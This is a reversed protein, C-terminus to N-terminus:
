GLKLPYSLLLLHLLNLAFHLAVALWLRRGLHFALGYGLGAVGAVLAFTPSFPAHAAGFLLAGLAIGAPARYRRVLATQLWGRFVLEESLATVCLNLPIWLWLFPPWKPQWAVVQLALALAPVAGLTLVLCGLLLGPREISRKRPRWAALLTAAVLLSGWALRLQYPAADPSVQLAPWLPRPSFGPPLQTILALSASLSVWWWLRPARQQPGALVWGAYLTGCLLARSDLDGLLSGGLLVLIPLSPRLLCSLSPAPM